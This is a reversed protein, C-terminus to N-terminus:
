VTMAAHKGVVPLQAINDHKWQMLPAAKKERAEPSRSNNTMNYPANMRIELVDAKRAADGADM